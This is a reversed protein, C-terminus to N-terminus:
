HALSSRIVAHARGIAERRLVGPRHLLYYTVRPLGVFPRTVVRPPPRCIGNVIATGLGLQAYRMLVEWGNAEFAVEASAGADAFARLVAARHPRGRPPLILPEGELHAASLRRRRALRHGRAMVVKAGVRAVARGELDPPVEDVVTVALHARGSRLADLAAEATATMLRLTVGEREVLEEIANPLLYLFSGEGAAIAVPADDAGALRARLAAEREMAERAHALVLEGEPTLVLARGDRRYLEVALSEALKRVQAHVAPQTLHLRRAAETFSLTEAFAEFARLWDPHAMALSENYGMVGFM